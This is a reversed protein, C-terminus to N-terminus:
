HHHIHATQGLPTIECHDDHCHENPSEFEITTHTIHHEALTHKIHTKLQASPRVTVVHLTAYNHEGDMSWLHIHHVNQVEPISLLLQTISEPSINAPSKELFVNLIAHFNMFANKLIFLAVLLSLIPDLYNINTFKMIIAGILVVVWGLVDELMHLNVAKQNLSSGTHTFYTAISNIVVGIVALILMGDYNITVPHILRFIANFIMFSSGLLLIFTTLFGGVVSYRLYGYTYHSNPHKQSYKELFFAIGISLADGFDHIADSMIATSGTLSGGIFEYLSFSLNLFFAIFINRSTKTSTHPYRPAQKHHHLSARHKSSNQPSM